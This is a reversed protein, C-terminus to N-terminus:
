VAETIIIEIIERFFNFAVTDEKIEADVTVCCKDFHINSIM